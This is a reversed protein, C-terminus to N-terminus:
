SIQIRKTRVDEMHPDLYLMIKAVLLILIQNGFIDLDTAMAKKGAINKHPTV